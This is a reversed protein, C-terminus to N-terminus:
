ADELATIRAELEQITKVLLPVLKSQDIGQMDPVSRTGMVAEAAATTINDDADRVEEVAPTVEYEEDKMADKTGTVCEPVVTAAEHALFGDVLTNTDDIIFNFRAPKLQKLRTTADWDYDVNEKLRYDSSTSYTTSSSNINISGVVSTQQHVFGMCQGGSQNVTSIFVGQAGSFAFSALAGGGNLPTDTGMTFRKGSGNAIIRMVEGGNQYFAVPHNTSSGIRVDSDQVTQIFAKTSESNSKVQFNTHSAGKVTLTSDPDTEGIGVKGANDITMADTWTIDADASGATAVRFVHTGDKQAHQSAQDSIQYQWDTSQSNGNNYANDSVFTRGVSGSSIGSLSATLGVQVADWSTHWGTEPVVGIGLNGTMTGGALPLKADISTNIANALKDATVADDAIDATAIAGDLVATSKITDIAM